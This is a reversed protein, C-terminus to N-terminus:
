TAMTGLGIITPIKVDGHDGFRDSDCIKRRWTRWVYLQLLDQTAMTDLRIVTAFRVDGHDEDFM